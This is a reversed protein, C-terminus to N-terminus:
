FCILTISRMWCKRALQRAAPNWRFFDFHCRGQTLIGKNWHIVCVKRAYLSVSFFTYVLIFPEDRTLARHELTNPKQVSWEFFADGGLAHVLQLNKQFSSTNNKENSSFGRIAPWGGIQELLDLLPQKDSAKFNLCSQYFRQASREAESSVDNAKGQPNELHNLLRFIFLSQFM